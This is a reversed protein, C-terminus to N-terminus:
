GAESYPKQAFTLGCNRVRAPALRVLAHEAGSLSHRGLQEVAVGLENRMEIVAKLALVEKSSTVYSRSVFTTQGVPSAATPAAAEIWALRRLRPHTARLPDLIHEAFGLGAWRAANPARIM